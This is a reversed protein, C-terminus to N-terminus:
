HYDTFEAEYADPTQWRFCIRYQKNVRISHQGARDGKLAELCNGPPVRLDELTRARDVARLKMRAREAIDAAVGKVYQGTFLAATRKDAFTKIVV